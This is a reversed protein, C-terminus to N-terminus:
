KLYGRLMEVLIKDCGERSVPKINQYEPHHSNRLDAIVWEGKRDCVILHVFGAEWMQPNFRYDAYLVYDADVPNKRAHDRFERALDWMVKMENPDAQSATLLLPQVAPEAKCLGADNIMKVLDTANGAEPPNDAM